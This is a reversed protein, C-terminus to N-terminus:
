GKLGGSSGGQVQRSGGEQLWYLTATCRCPPFSQLSHLLILSYLVAWLVLAVIRLPEALPTPKSVQRVKVIVPHLHSAQEVRLHLGLLNWCSVTQAQLVQLSM